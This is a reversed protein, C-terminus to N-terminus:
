KNTIPVIITIGKENRWLKIDDKVVTIKKFSDEIRVFLNQEQKM